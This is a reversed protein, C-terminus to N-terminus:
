YKGGNGSSSSPPPLDGFLDDMEKRIHVQSEIALGVWSWGSHCASFGNRRGEWGEQRGAHTQSAGAYRLM